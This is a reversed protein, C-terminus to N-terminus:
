SKGDNDKVLFRYIDQSSPSYILPQYYLNNIPMNSCRSLRSSTAYTVM